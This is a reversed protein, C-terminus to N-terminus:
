MMNIRDSIVHIPEKEGQEWEGRRGGDWKQGASTDGAVVIVSKARPSRRHWWNLEPSTKSAVSKPDGNGFIWHGREKETILSNSKRATWIWPLFSRQLMYLHEQSDSADEGFTKKKRQLVSSTCSSRWMQSRGSRLMGHQALPSHRSIPLFCITKEVQSKDDILLCHHNPYINQPFNRKQKLMVPWCSMKGSSKHQKNTKIPFDGQEM